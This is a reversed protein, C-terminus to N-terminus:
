ICMHTPYELLMHLWRPEGQSEEGLLQGVDLGAIGGEVTLEQSDEGGDAMEM